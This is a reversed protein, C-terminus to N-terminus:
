AVEQMDRNYKYKRYLDICLNKIFLFISDVIMYCLAYTFPEIGAGNATGFLDLVLNYKGLFITIFFLIVSLLMNYALAVPLSKIAKMNVMNFKHTDNRSTHMMNVIPKVIYNFFLALFLGILVITSIYSSLVAAPDDAMDGFNMGIDVGGIVSFFVAAAAAWYKLLLVIIWSPVGKKQYKRIELEQADDKVNKKM